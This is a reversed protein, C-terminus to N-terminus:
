KDGRLDYCILRPSSDDFPGQTHQTVYLLGRSLAPMGWTNQALFLRTRDLEKYGKPNLDLWVLMGTDSLMLCRGDVQMLSALGPSFPIKRMGQATRVSEVWEPEERWMEKGTKLELCVLPANQPGHGNIGYLYGDKVVATMFHTGLSNNSWRKKFTGNPLLDLLAGGSGYCESIYVQNGTVVPSSANVSEFPLGRWPFRFDVKGNAPDICLLGGNPPRSEGGAFVFVRRKGHVTAPVPAAYSAGWDKGAGWLQKGTLIDFGAVCPGAEAGVHVIVKDGEILPTSGVGFFNQRLRFKKMTDLSWVLKGSDLMRCQLQGSVGLTIVHKGDSVPQCRPGSSFGYRDSYDTKFSGKWLSKGTEAELCELVEAGDTRHFLLVRGGVVAPTAYGEGKTFEWLKRPGDKPFRRLLPSEPSSGNHSPGLFSRWESTVAGPALPRPKGHFRLSARAGTAALLLAAAVPIM